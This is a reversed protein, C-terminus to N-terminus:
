MRRTRTRLEVGPLTAPATAAPATKPPRGPRPRAAVWARCAERDFLRYTGMDAYPMGETVWRDITPSSRRLAHALEAKTLLTPPPEPEDPPRLAGIVRTAVREVIVDLDRDSLRVFDSM